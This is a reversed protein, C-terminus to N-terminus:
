QAVGAFAPIDEKIMSFCMDKIENSLAALDAEPGASLILMMAASSFDLLPLAALDGRAEAKAKESAITGLMMPVMMGAFPNNQMDPGNFNAWLDPVGAAFNPCDVARIFPKDREGHGVDQANVDMAGALILAMGGVIKMTTKWM